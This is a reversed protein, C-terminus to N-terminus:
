LLVHEKDPMPYKRKSTIKFDTREKAKLAHEDIYTKNEKKIKNNSIIYFINREMYYSKFLNLDLKKPNTMISKSEEYNPTVLLVCSGKLKNKLNIPIIFTRKYLQLNNLEDLYIAM